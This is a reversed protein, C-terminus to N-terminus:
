LPGDAGSEPLLGSSRSQRLEEELARLRVTLLQLIRVASAKSNPRGSVELYEEVLGRLEEVGAKLDM